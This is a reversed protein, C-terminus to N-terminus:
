KFSAVAYSEPRRFKADFMANVVLKIQYKNALTLHDVTIDLGGWQAVVLDAFNAFLLGHEDTNIGTAVSNTVLLPYGNLTNGDSLFGNYGQADKLTTRLVAKGQPNTIYAINGTLANRAEVSAEMNVLRKYSAVGKDSITGTFLGAPQKASGADKGLITAELANSISNILDNYLLEELYQDQAQLLLQRSIILETTLRKPSFSVTSFSGKGDVAAANEDAWKSTSGSYAPIEIDGRLDTLFTVGANGFVLRNRLPELIDFKDTQILAQNQAKATLEGARQKSTPLIIGGDSAGFLARTQESLRGTVLERLARGPTVVDRSNRLGGGTFPTKKREKALAKDLIAIGRQARAIQKLRKSTNKGKLYRQVISVLRNRKDLMDTRTM